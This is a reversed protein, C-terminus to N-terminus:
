MCFEEAEYYTRDENGRSIYRKVTKNCKYWIVGFIVMTALNPALTVPNSREWLAGILVLVLDLVLGPVHLLRWVTLLLISKFYAGLGLCINAVLLLSPILLFFVKQTTNNIDLLYVTIRLLAGIIPLSALAWVFLLLRDTCDLRWLKMVTKNKKKGHFHGVLKGGTSSM